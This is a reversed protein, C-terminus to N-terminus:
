KAIAKLYDKMLQNDFAQVSLGLRMFAQKLASLYNIITRFNLGRCVLTKMHAMLLGVANVTSIHHVVYFSMYEKTTRNQLATM